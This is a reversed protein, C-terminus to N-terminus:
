MEAKESVTMEEGFWKFCKEWVKSKYMVDFQPFISVITYCVSWPTETEYDFSRDGPTADAQGTSKVLAEFDAYGVLPAKVYYRWECFYRVQAFMSFGTDTKM